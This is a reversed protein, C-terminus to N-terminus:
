IYSKFKWIFKLIMGDIEAVVFFFGPPIKIHIKIFRYILKPLIARKVINHREIWTCPTDKWKSADEKIEKLLIKYIKAYLGNM